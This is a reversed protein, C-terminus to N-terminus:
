KFLLGRSEFEYSTELKGAVSDQQMRADGIVVIQRGESNIPITFKEEKFTMVLEAGDSSMMSLWCGKELCNKDIKGALQVDKLEGKERLGAVLEDVTKPTQETFAEGLRTPGTQCSYALLAALMMIMIKKM